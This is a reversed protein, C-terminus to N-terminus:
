QLTQQAARVRQQREDVGDRWDSQTHAGVGHQGDCSQLPLALHRAATEQMGCSDRLTAVEPSRRLLLAPL